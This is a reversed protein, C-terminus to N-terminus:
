ANRGTEEVRDRSIHTTQTSFQRSAMASRVRTDQSQHRLVVHGGHTKPDPFHHGHAAGRVLASPHSVPRGILRGDLPRELAAVQDRVTVAPHISQTAALLSAYSERSSKRLLRPNEEEVFRRRVEVKPVLQGHPRQDLIQGRALADGHEDGHV